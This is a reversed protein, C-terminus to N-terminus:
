KEFEAGPGFSGFHSCFGTSRQNIRCISTTLLATALNLCTSILYVSCGLFFVRVVPAKDMFVFDM